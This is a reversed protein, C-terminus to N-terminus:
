IPVTLRALFDINNDEILLECNNGYLLELRKRTNLIGIGSPGESKGTNPIVNKIEFILKSKESYIKIHIYSGTGIGIGHKFANELLSTYLLPPIARNPLSDQIELLIDTKGEFRLRM